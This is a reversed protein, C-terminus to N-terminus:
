LNIMVVYLAKCHTSQRDRKCFRRVWTLLDGLLDKGVTDM